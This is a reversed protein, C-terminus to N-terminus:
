LEVEKLFDMKYSKDERMIGLFEGKSVEEPEFDIFMSGLECDDRLFDNFLPMNEWGREEATQFFNDCAEKLIQLSKEPTCNDRMFFKALAVYGTTEAKAMARFIKIKM